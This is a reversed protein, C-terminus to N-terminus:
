LYRSLYGDPPRRLAVVCGLLLGLGLGPVLVLRRQRADAAAPQADQLLQSGDADIARLLELRRELTGLRASAGELADTRAAASLDAEVRTREATAVAIQTRISQTVAQSRIQQYAEGVARAGSQARAASVERYCFRVVETNPPVSASLSAGDIAFGARESATARVSEGEIVALENDMLVFRRVPADPSVAEPLVPEVEIVSCSVWPLGSVTLWGAGGALGLVAGAVVVWWGAVLQRAAAGV